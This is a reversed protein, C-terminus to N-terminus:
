KLWNNNINSFYQNNLKTVFLAAINAM